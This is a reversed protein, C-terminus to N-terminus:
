ETEQKMLLFKCMIGRQFEPGFHPNQYPHQTEFFCYSARLLM